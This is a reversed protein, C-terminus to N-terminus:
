LKDPSTIKLEKIFCFHKTNLDFTKEYRPKRLNEVWKVSDGIDKRDGWMGFSQKLAKLKAQKIKVNSKKLFDAKLQDKM